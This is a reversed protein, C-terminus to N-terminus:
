DELHCIEKIIWIDKTPLYGMKLYSLDGLPMIVKPNNARPAIGLAVCFMANIFGGHSIVLTHHSNKRILTQLAVGARGHIEMSSEGDNASTVYPQFPNVFDAKPYRKDAETFSLGALSGNDMEQFVPDIDPEINFADGMVQAVKSARRLSSSVIRSFSQGQELWFDRRAYAQQLGTETLPSDYRGEHVNEDDAQSRGHRLFTFVLENAM